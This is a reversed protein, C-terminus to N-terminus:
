APLHASRPRERVGWVVIASVGGLAGGVLTDVIRDLATTLDAAPQLLNLLVVVFPTLFLAYLLYNARQVAVTAGMFGVLCAVLAWSPLLLLTVAGGIAAGVVTGVIRSSMRELTSRLSSRMVVVITLLVWYDRPLRLAFGIALGIACALGTVLANVWIDRSVTQAAASGHAASASGNTPRLPTYGGILLALVVAWGGGLLVSGLVGPLPLPGSSPLGLGIVFCASVVVIIETLGIRHAVIEVGVIAAGALPVVLYIPGLALLAGGAFALSNLVAAVSLLRLREESSTTLLLLLVNLTGISALVAWALQDILLGIALPLAVWIGVALASWGSLQDRALDLSPILTRLELTPQGSLESRSM